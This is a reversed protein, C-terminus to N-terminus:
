RVYEWHWPERPITRFGYRGANDVLWQGVGGSVDLDVARGMGHNSTGPTAALGGQSYLGKRAAVDVQQEYTRYSDTIRDTLSLGLDAQIAADMSLFAVAADGQLRHHDTISALADPDLRGNRGDAPPIASRVSAFGGSAPRLAVLFGGWASSAASTATRTGTPGVAAVVEDAALITRTGATGQARVAMGGPPTITTSTSQFWLGVVTTDPDATTVENQVLTATSPDQHDSTSVFPSSQDVGDYVLMTAAGVGARVTFTQTTGADGATAIRYWLRVFQNSAFADKSRHLTWGAPASHNQHEDAGLFVVLLDGVQVYSPVTMPYEGSANQAVIASLPVSCNTTLSVTAPTSTWDGDLTTLTWTYATNNATGTDVHSSATGPTVPGLNTAGRTLSYGDADPSATPTWNLTVTPTTGSCSQTATLNTPPALTAAAFSNTPNASAAVFTATSALTVVVMVVSLATGGLPAPALRRTVRGERWRRHWRGIPLHPGCPDVLLIFLPWAIPLPGLETVLLGATVASLTTPGWRRVLGAIPTPGGSVRRAARAIRGRPRRRRASTGGAPADADGGTLPRALEKVRAVVLWATLTMLVWVGAATPDQDVWLMPLGIFPVLLRGSGLIAEPQISTSDAVASGDGRTRYAGDDLQEVIRHTVLLDDWAPDEFTIVTGPSLDDVDADTDVLVVDGPNIAPTMSGADIMVPQWRFGVMPGLVWLALCVLVWLYTAAAVLVVVRRWLLRNDPRSRSVVPVSVTADPSAGAM